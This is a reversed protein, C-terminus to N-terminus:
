HIIIGPDKKKGNHFHVTYNFTRAQGDPIEVVIEDSQHKGPHFFVRDFPTGEQKDFVVVFDLDPPDAVWEVRHKKSKHLHVLEKDVVPELTKPHETITITEM